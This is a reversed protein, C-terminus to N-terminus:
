GVSGKMFALFVAEVLWNRKLAALNKSLADSLIPRPIDTCSRTNAVHVTVGDADLVSWDFRALHSDVWVGNRKSASHGYTLTIPTEPSASFDSRIIRGDKTGVYTFTHAVPVAEGDNLTIDALAM